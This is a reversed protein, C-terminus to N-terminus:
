VTWKPFRARWEQMIVDQTAKPLLSALAGPLSLKHRGGSEAFSKIKKEPYDCLIWKKSAPRTLYNAEIDALDEKKRRQPVSLGNAKCHAYVMKERAEQVEIDLIFALQKSNLYNM